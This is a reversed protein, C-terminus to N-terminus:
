VQFIDALLGGIYREEETLSSSPQLLTKFSKDSNQSFKLKNQLGSLYFYAICGGKDKQSWLLGKGAFLLDRFPVSDAM